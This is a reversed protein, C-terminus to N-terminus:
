AFYSIGRLRRGRDQGGRGREGWQYRSIQERYGHTQKKKNYESSKESEM